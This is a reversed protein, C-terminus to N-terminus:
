LVKWLGTIELEEQLKKKARAYNSKSSGISINLKKAIEHHKYGEIAFLSFVLRYAPSLKQIHALVQEYNLKDWVTNKAIVKQDIPFIHGDVSRLKHYKRHYDIASNVVVKRLWPKFEMTEDFMDLKSFIKMFADNVIEQAETKEKSFRLAIGMAYGYFLKYLRKQARHDGEACSQLISTLQQRGEKMLITKVLWL